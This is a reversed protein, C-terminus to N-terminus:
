INGKVNNKNTDNLPPEYTQYSFNQELEEANLRKKRRNYIKKGLLFFVISFIIGLIIIIFYYKTNSIQFDNIDKNIENYYLILKSDFNFAFFYKKLFPKGFEWMDNYTEHFVILFYYFDDKLLFLDDYDLYFTENLGSSKMKLSPFKKLDNKTFNNKNCVYANYHYLYRIKCIKNDFYFQFYNEKIYNEYEVTGLIGGLNYHLAVNREYFSENNGSIIEDFKLGFHSKFRNYLNIYTKKTNETTYKEPFIEEPYRGFILFDENGRKDYIFFMVYSDIINYQKLTILFNKSIADHYNTTPRFGITACSNNTIVEELNHRESYFSDNLPNTMFMFPFNSISIEKNKNNIDTNLIITENAYFASTYEQYYFTNRSNVTIPKFTTSQNEDFKSSLVCIDKFLYYSYEDPDIWTKIEQPPTGIKLSTYIKNSITYNLFDTLSFSNLPLSSIYDNSYSTLKFSIYNLSNISILKLIFLITFLIKSIYM